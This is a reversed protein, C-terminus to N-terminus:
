EPKGKHNKLWTALCKKPKPANEDAVQKIRAPDVGYRECFEQDSYLNGIAKEEASLM